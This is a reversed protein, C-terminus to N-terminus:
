DTQCMDSIKEKRKEYDNKKEKKIVVNNTDTFQVLLRRVTFQLKM